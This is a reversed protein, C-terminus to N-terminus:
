RWSPGSGTAPCLPGAARLLLALTVLAIGILAAFGALRGGGPGRRRYGYWGPYGDYRRM